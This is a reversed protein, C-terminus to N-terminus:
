KSAVGSFGVFAPGSRLNAVSAVLYRASNLEPRIEPKM